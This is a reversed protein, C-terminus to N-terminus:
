ALKAELYKRLEEIFKDDVKNPTSKVFNEVEPLVVLLILERIFEKQSFLKNLIESLKDKFM